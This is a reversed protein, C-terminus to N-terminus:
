TPTSTAPSRRGCTPPSCGGSPHDPPLNHTAVAVPAWGALAASKNREEVSDNDGDSHLYLGEKERPKHISPLDSAGIAGDDVPLGNYV